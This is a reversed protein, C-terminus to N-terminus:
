RAFALRMGQAFLFHQIADLCKGLCRFIGLAQSKIGNFQMPGM